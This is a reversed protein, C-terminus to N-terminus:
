FIIKDFKYQLYLKTRLSVQFLHKFKVAWLNLHKCFLTEKNLLNRNLTKSYM